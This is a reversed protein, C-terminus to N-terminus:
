TLNTPKDIFLRRRNKSSSLINLEVVGIFKLNLEHTDDFKVKLEHTNLEVPAM